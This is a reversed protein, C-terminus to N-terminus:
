FLTLDRKGGSHASEMSEGRKVLEKISDDNCTQDTHNKNFNSSTLTLM